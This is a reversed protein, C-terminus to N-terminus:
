YQWSRGPAKFFFDTNWTLDKHLMCFLWALTHGRPVKRKTYPVTLRLMQGRTLSVLRSCPRHLGLVPGSLHTDVLLPCDQRTAPWFHNHFSLGKCAAKSLPLHRNARPALKTSNPNNNKGPFLSKHSVASVWCMLSCIQLIHSFM